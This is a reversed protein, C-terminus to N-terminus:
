KVYAKGCWPCFNHPMEYMQKRTQLEVNTYYVDVRSATVGTVTEHVETMLNLAHSKPLHKWNSVVEM